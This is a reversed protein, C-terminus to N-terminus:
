GKIWALYTDHGDDTPEGKVGLFVGLENTTGITARGNTGIAIFNGETPAVGSDVVMFVSGEILYEDADGEKCNGLNSTSAISVGLVDDATSTAGLALKGNLVCCFCGAIPKISNDVEGDFHFVISNDLNVSGAINKLM